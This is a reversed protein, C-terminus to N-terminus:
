LLSNQPTFSSLSVLSFVSSNQDGNALLSIIYSCHDIPLQPERQGFRRGIEAVAALMVM